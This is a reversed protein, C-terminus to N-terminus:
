LPRTDARSYATEDDVHNALAFIIL